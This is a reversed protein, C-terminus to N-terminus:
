LSGKREPSTATPLDSRRIQAKIEEITPLSKTVAIQAESLSMGQRQYQQILTLVHFAVERDIHRRLRRADVLAQARTVLTRLSFM